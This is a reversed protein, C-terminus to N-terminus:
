PQKPPAALEAIYEKLTVEKSELLINNSLAFCSSSITIFRGPSQDTISKLGLKRLIEATKLAEETTKHEIAKYNFSM